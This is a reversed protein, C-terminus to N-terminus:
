HYHGAQGFFALRENYGRRGHDFSKHTVALWKVEETLMRQGGKGLYTEYFRDLLAPDGNVSFENNYVPPKSRFPAKMRPPTAQWRPTETKQAQYEYHSSRATSFGRLSPNARFQPARFSSWYCPKPKPRRLPRTVLSLHKEAIRAPM